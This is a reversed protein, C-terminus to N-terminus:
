GWRQDSPQCVVGTKVRESEKEVKTKKSIASARATDLLSQTFSILPHQGDPHLINQQRLRRKLREIEDNEPGETASGDQLSETPGAHESASGDGKGFASDQDPPVDDPIEHCGPESYEHFPTPM